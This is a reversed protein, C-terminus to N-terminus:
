QNLLPSPLDLRREHLMRLRQDPQSPYWPCPPIYNLDIEAVALGPQAGAEALTEGWPDFIRSVNDYGALVVFVHNELARARIVAENDGWVPLLIVEAGQAALERAPDPSWSDYGTMIGIRGFDTNFVPYSHGPSVGQDHHIESLYVRRYVGALEGDRGILVASSYVAAGARETIGAVIYMRHRRAVEGLRATTPGPIPEAIDPFEVGSLGIRNTAEGLCVIDCHQEGARELVACFEEISEASSKKDRPRHYVAGLRVPRRPPDSVQALVIRDWRAAGGPANGLYLEVRALAVGAPAQFRGAVKRWLGERGVEESVYHPLHIRSSDAGYWALRALARQRPWNVGRTQCSAELRYWRGPIIGGVLRCWGGRAIESSGCDIGLAGPGGLGPEDCIFFRPRLEARQSWPEWGATRVEEVSSFSDASLLVREGEEARAAPALALLAALWLVPWRLRAATMTGGTKM